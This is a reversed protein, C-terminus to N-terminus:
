VREGAGLLHEGGPRDHLSSSGFRRTRSGGTNKAQVIFRENVWKCCGQLLHQTVQARFTSQILPSYDSRESNTTERTNNFGVTM